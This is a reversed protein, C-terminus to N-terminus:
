VRGGWPGGNAAPHGHPGFYGFSGERGPLLPLHKWDAMNEKGLGTDISCANRVRGRVCSPYTADSLWRHRMM